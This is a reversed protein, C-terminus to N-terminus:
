LSAHSRPLTVQACPSMASSDHRESQWNPYQATLINGNVATKGQSALQLTWFSQHQLKNSVTSGYHTGFFSSGYLRPQQLRVQPGAAPLQDLYSASAYQSQPTPIPMLGHQQQLSQFYPVQSKSLPELRSRGKNFSDNVEFGNGGASLSLFNFSQKQQGYAGPTPPAQSIDHYHCQQLLIGSKTEHSNRTTASHVTGSASSNGNRMGNLDHVEMLTGCKSGQHGRMQHCEYLEPEKAVQRKPVELSRILHSIHVHAACRKWSKKQFVIEAIKGGSSCREMIDQKSACIAANQWVSAQAASSQMYSATIGASSSSPSLGPWLAPGENEKQYKIVHQQQKGDIGRATEFEVDPQRGNHSIQSQRPVNLGIELCLESDHLAVKSGNESGVM